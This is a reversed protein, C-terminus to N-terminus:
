GAKHQALASLKMNMFVSVANQADSYLQSEQSSSIAGDTVLKNLQTHIASDIDSQVKAAHSGAVQALTEGNMLDKFITTAPLGIDTQIQKLEGSMAGFAALGGSFGGFGFGGFAAGHQGSAWPHPQTSSHTSSSATLAATQATAPASVHDAAVWSGLGVVAAGLVGIAINKPTVFRM